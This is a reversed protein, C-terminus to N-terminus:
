LPVMKVLSLHLIPIEPSFQNIKKFTHRPIVVPTSIILLLPWVGADIGSAIIETM